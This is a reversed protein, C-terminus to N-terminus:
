LKYQMATIGANQKLALDIAQRLSLEEGRAAVAAGLALMLIVLNKRM